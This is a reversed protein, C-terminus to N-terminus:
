WGPEGVDETWTVSLMNEHEDAFYGQRSWAKVEPEEQKAGCAALTFAICMALLICVIRKMTTIYTKKM